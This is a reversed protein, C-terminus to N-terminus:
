GRDVGKPTVRVEVDFDSYEAKVAGDFHQQAYAAVARIAMDTADEKGELFATGAKNLRGIWITPTLPGASVVIRNQPSM